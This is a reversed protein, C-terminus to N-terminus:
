LDQLGQEIQIPINCWKTNSTSNRVKDFGFILINQWWRPIGSKKLERLHEVLESANVILNKSTM